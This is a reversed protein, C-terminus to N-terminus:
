NAKKKIIKESLELLSKFNTCSDFVGNHDFLSIPDLVSKREMLYSGFLIRSLKKEILAKKEEKSMKDYGRKIM